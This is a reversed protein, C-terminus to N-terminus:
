QPNQYEIRSTAEALLRVELPFPINITMPYETRVRLSRGRPGPWDMRNREIEDPDISVQIRAANLSVAADQIAGIIEQDGEGQSRDLTAGTRAGEWTAHTLTIQAQLLIGLQILGILLLLLVPLTIALEVVAQSLNYGRKDRRLITVNIM